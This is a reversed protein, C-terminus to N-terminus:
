KYTYDNMILQLYGLCYNFSYLCTSITLSTM